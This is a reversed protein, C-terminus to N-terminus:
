GSSAQPLGWQQLWGMFIGRQATQTVIIDYTLARLRPDNTVDRLIFSMEAAQDHHTAMDRAFGAEASDEAPPRASRCATTPALAGLALAVGFMVARPRRWGRPRTGSHM